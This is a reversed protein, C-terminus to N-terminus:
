LLVESELTKVSDAAAEYEVPGVLGVESDDGNKVGSEAHTGFEKM